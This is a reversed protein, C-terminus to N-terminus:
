AHTESYSAVAETVVSHLQAGQEPKFGEGTDTVSVRVEDGEASLTVGIHGGGPTFKMANTLLNYLVQSLRDPDAVIPLVSPGRTDLRINAQIAPEQFTEVVDHM